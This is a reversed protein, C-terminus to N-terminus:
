HLYQGPLHRSFAEETGRRWDCLATKEPSPAERASRSAPYYHRQDPKTCGIQSLSCPSSSVRCNAPPLASALGGGGGVNGGFGPCEQAGAGSVSLWLTPKPNQIGHNAVRGDNMVIRLGVAIAQRSHSTMALFYGYPLQLPCDSYATQNNGNRNQMGREFIGLSLVNQMPIAPMYGHFVVLHFFRGSGRLGLVLGDVSRPQQCGGGPGPADPGTEPGTFDQVSIYISAGSRRVRFAVCEITLQLAILRKTLPLGYLVCTAAALGLEATADEFAQHWSAPWYWSRAELQRSPRVYITLALAGAPEAGYAM